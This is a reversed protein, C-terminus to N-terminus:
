TMDLRKPAELLLHQLLHRYSLFPPLSSFRLRLCLALRNLPPFPQVLPLPLTQPPSPCHNLLLHSSPSPTTPNESTHRTHPAPPIPESVTHAAGLDQPLTHQLTNCCTATHQLTICHTATHQLMNCRTATHQLTNYRVATHKLKTCPTATYQLIYRKTSNGGSRHDHTYKCLLARYNKPCARYLYTCLDWLNRRTHVCLVACIYVLLVVRM